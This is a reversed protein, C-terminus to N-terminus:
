EYGISGFDFDVPEDMLGPNLSLDVEPFPILFDEDSITVKHSSVGLKSADNNVYFDNLGRWTGREQSSVIAKAETPKYYHLRVLDYWRDGELALELRREKDIDAFTFSTADVHAGKLARARVANLAALASANNTVENNGLVAEAYVLYVDALRLLHTSLPTHMTNLAGFGQAEADALRGVIHKACNAGTGSAFNLTGGYTGTSSSDWNYNFGGFETWLHDYSDGFMMMTAKRRSDRYNRTQTNASEDFAEQLDITMYRWNGWSTVADSFNGMSLDSQLSNQSTWQAGVTWHWSILSERNFNEKLQFLEGYEPHLSRGSKDIVMKAFLAAAELDQENRSGSQGYGAKTLYVKSLLGYASYKDIRGMDNQEPLLEIADKLVLTIYKYVDEIKNRKLTTASNDAIIAENDHVIPIAGFCRVLYFYAMAKWVMAEGKVTNKAYDSVAASSKSDVNKIVGNCYANVSWLSASASAIVVDSSNLTFNTYGDDIGFVINGALIDGIQIFGRQFDYWPSNYITNVSQFLQQDDQYFSDITYTDEAPRDLFDECSITGGLVLIAVLFIKIKNIKM